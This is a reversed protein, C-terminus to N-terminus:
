DTELKYNVITINSARQKRLEWLKDYEALLTRLAKLKSFPAAWTTAEVAVRIEAITLPKVYKTSM